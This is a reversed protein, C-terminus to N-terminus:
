EKRIIPKEKCKIEKNFWQDFSNLRQLKNIGVDKRDLTVYSTQYTLVM